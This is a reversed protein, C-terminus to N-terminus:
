GRVFPGTPMRLIGRAKTRVVLLLFLGLFLFQVHVFENWQNFGGGPGPYRAGPKQEMAPSVDDLAMLHEVDWGWLWGVGPKGQRMAVQDLFHFALQIHGGEGDGSFGMGQAVVSGSVESEELHLNRPDVPFPIVSPDNPDAVAMILGIRRTQDRAGPHKHAVVKGEGSLNADAAFMGAKRDPIQAVERGSGHALQPILEVLDVLPDLSIPGPLEPIRLSVVQDDSGHIAPRNSRDLNWHNELFPPLWRMLLKPWSRSPAEEIRDGFDVLNEVWMDGNGPALGKVPEEVLQHPHVLLLM